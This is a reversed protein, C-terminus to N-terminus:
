PTAVPADREFRRVAARIQAVWKFGVYHLNVLERSPVWRLDGLRRFGAGLLSRLVVPQFRIHNGALDNPDDLRVDM